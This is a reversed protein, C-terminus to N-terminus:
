KRQLKHIPDRESVRYGHNDVTEYVTGSLNVEMPKCVSLLARAEDIPEGYVDFIPVEMDVFGGVIKGMSIASRAKLNEGVESKTNKIQTNKGM